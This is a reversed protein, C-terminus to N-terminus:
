NIEMIENDGQNVDGTKLLNLSQDESMNTFVVPVVASPAKAKVHDLDFELLKQGRKVKDGDQVLVEFGEGKLNVTELGIHILIEYGQNSAIGIAHKTPFINMIKGDVPAVVSGQAPEIAFGDGMMKQSFVEDPVETISMIQGEVPAGFDEGKLPPLQNGDAEPETAQEPAPVEDDGSAMREKMADAVFEVQTGVIVQLNTKSMKMVGNAGQAKLRGEDVKSMDNIKLRLRTACNDLSQINDKGGLAQLYQYATADYKGNSTTSESGSEDKSGSSGVEQDFLWSAVGAGEGEERGPTKLNFLTIAFYFVIFYIVGYIFCQLLLLWQGQALKFQLVYDIFGASFGFGYHIDLLNSVILSTGALLAHIVYLVPALFMFSFEIPETVGTLFSTLALSFMLGGIVKKNEKKAALYMALCAAPMGFMMVPYFGATFIGASPDGHLFRTIDGHWTQGGADFSGFEFWIFTNVVHHLGFPILLRNIVGYVGAGIAGANIIWEGVAHIGDQVFPWIIGALGGLIVMTVTTIIPVFRRGGFFALYDPLKIKHFRNYLLGAIIGSIIGGLVGMNISDDVGQAANTLVLYAIAGSLAAPGSGDKSFGIAVGIAFIIGFHGLIGNGGEVMFPVDFLSENGLVLIIAAAPLVAIPLMLSKGIQQLFGLM